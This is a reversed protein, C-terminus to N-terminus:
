PGENNFYIEKGTPKEIILEFRVCSITSGLFEGNAGVTVSEGLIGVVLVYRRNSRFTFDWPYQAGDYTLGEFSEKKEKLINQLWIIEKSSITENAKLKFLENRLDEVDLEKDNSLVPRTSLLIVGVVLCATCFLIIGVILSRSHLHM